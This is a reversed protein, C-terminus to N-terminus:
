YGHDKDVQHRLPRQQQIRGINDILQAVIVSVQASSAMHPTVIVNPHTWMPDNDPLPEVPFVDILAGTLQGCDLAAIVESNVMHAGRGCNILAAGQPLKSLLPSAIIGRTQATLPLVNIIVDLQDCFADLQEEGAFCTVDELSKESRAWGSVVYGLSAFQRALYSGIEGLGMIGVKFMNSSRQPYLQWHKQQQNHIARDFYRQFHLVGWLAYEFMGHRFNDDVVRCLPIESRFLAEPLHDVGASAAQVLKLHPSRTLLLPDPFWCSAYQAAHARSDAPLVAEVESYDALATCIEEALLPDDCDVVVISKNMTM